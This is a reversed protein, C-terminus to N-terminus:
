MSIILKIGVKQWSAEEFHPPLPGESATVILPLLLLLLMKARLLSGESIDKGIYCSGKKTFCTYRWAPLHFAVSQGSVPAPSICTQQESAVCVPPLTTSHTVMSLPLRSNGDPRDWNESGIEKKGLFDMQKSPGAIFWQQSKDVNIAM